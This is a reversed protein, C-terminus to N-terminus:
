TRATFNPRNTGRANRRAMASDIASKGGFMEPKIGTSRLEQALRGAAFREAKHGELVRQIGEMNARDHRKHATQELKTVADRHANQAKVLKAQADSVVSLLKNVEAEADAVQAQLEEVLTAEADGDFVAEPEVKDAKDAAGEAPKAESPMSIDQVLRTFKPAANTIDARSPAKGKFGLAAIAPLGDETWHADNKPDLKQLAARIEDSM